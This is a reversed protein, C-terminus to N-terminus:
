PTQQDEKSLYPAIDALLKICYYEVRHTEEATLPRTKAASLIRECALGYGQVDERIYMTGSKVSKTSENCVYWLHAAGSTQNSASPEVSAQPHAVLGLPYPCHTSSRHREHSFSHIEEATEM